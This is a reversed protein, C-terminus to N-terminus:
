YNLLDKKVVTTIKNNELRFLGKYGGMWFRGERDEYISQIANTTLGNSENFNQFENEDFRYVGFNEAPFWIRGKNDEFISWVEEGQITGQKTFNTFVSGDYKSIGGFHTAFWYHGNRDQHIDNVSNNSLGDKESINKLEGNKFTYAGGETGFWMKGKNDEFICHVAKSSSVGRLENPEAEPLEFLSFTTGDYKFAGELTGIWMVGHSDITLSWTNDGILGDERDLNIFNKGDFKTLGRETAFWVNSDKDEVIARIAEGGFGDKFSLYDVSKGDYKIVGDGNTGLWLNGKSDQFIRRIFTSLAQQSNEVKEVINVQIDEQTVKQDTQGQGICSQFLASVVTVILLKYM